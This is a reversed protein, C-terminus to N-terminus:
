TRERGKRSIAVDPKLAPVAMLEEGTFPCTIPAITSTVEPLNMGVYGRLV